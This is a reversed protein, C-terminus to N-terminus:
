KCRPRNHVKFTLIPVTNVESDLKLGVAFTGISKKIKDVESKSKVIKHSLFFLIYGFNKSTRAIMISLMIGVSLSLFINHKCEAVVFVGEFIRM